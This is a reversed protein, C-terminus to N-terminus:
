GASFPSGSAPGGGDAGGPGAGPAGDADGREAPVRRMGGGSRQRDPQTARWFLVTAVAIVASLVVLGTIVMSLRASADDGGDAAVQVLVALLTTPPTM